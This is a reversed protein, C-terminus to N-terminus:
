PLVELWACTLIGEPLSGGVPEVAWGVTCADAGRGDTRLSYLRQREKDSALYIEERAIRLATDGQWLTLTLYARFGFTEGSGMTNQTGGIYVDVQAHDAGTRLPLKGTQVTFGAAAQPWAATLRHAEAQLTVAPPATLAVSTFDTFRRAFADVQAADSKTAVVLTGLASCACLVALFWVLIKRERLSM